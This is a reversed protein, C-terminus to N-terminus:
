ESTVVVGGAVEPKGIYARVRRWKEATDHGDWPDPFQPIHFSVQGTPLQILLVPWEPEAPDIRTGAKYGLRIAETVAEPVLANRTSYSEPHDGCQEILTLLNILYYDRKKDIGRKSM